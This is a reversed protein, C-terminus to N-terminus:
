MRRLSEVSRTAMREKREARKVDNEFAYVILLAGEVTYYEIECEHKNTAVKCSGEAFHAKLHQPGVLKEEGNGKWNINTLELSSAVEGLRKTAEGPREFEVFGLISTKDKPAFLTWPGKKRETWGNGPHNFEMHARGLRIVKESKDHAGEKAGKEGHEHEGKEGKAGKEGKGHKGHEGKEPKDPEGSAAPEPPPAPAATEPPAPTTAAPAATGPRGHCSGAARGVRRAERGQRRRRM